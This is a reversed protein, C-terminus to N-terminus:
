RRRVTIAINAPPREPEPDRTPRQYRPDSRMQELRELQEERTGNMFMARYYRNIRNGETNRTDGDEHLEWVIAMVEHRAPGLLREIRRLRRGLSSAAAIASFPSPEAQADPDALTM